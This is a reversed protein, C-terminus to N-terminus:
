WQRQVHRCSLTFMQGLRQLAAPAKIREQLAYLAHLMGVAATRAQLVRYASARDAPARIRGQPASQVHGKGAAATHDLRVNGVPLPM